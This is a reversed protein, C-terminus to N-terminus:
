GRGETIAHRLQSYAGSIRQILFDYHLRQKSLQLFEHDIDVNNGDIRTQTIEDTRIEPRVAALERALKQQGAEGSYRMQHSYLPRQSEAIKELLLNEFELKQQGREGSYRMQHSYLNNNRIEAVKQILLNEFELKQAKYNPTNINSINHGTVEMRQWTLDLGRQMNRIHAADLFNLM